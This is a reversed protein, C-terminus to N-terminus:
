SAGKFHSAPEEKHLRAHENRARDNIAISLCHPDRYNAESMLWVVADSVGANRVLMEFLGAIGEDTAAAATIAEAATM